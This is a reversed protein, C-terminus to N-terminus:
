PSPNQPRQNCLYPVPLDDAFAASSLTNALHNYTANQNSICSHQYGRGGVHLWRLLPEMYLLFIFPSLTDGQITGREVPIQKTSGGSPSRGQTTANEYPTKVTDVADTHFGLNYMIWLMLDHYTTNFASTFDVILAYIDKGFAKADGLGM